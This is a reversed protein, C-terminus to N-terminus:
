FTVAVVEDDDEKRGQSGEGISITGGDNAGDEAQRSEPRIEIEGGGTWMRCPAIVHDSTLRWSLSTNQGNSFHKTAAFPRNAPPPRIPARRIEPEKFRSPRLSVMWITQQTHM